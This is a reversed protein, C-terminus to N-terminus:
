SRSRTTSASRRSSCRSARSCSCSRKSSAWSTTTSTRTTRRPSTTARSRRSVRRCCPSCTRRRAAAPERRRRGVVDIESAKDPSPMFLAQAQDFTFSVFTVAGLSDEGGITLIGVVKVQTPDPTLVTITDGVAINEDDAVKKDIAVEGAAAPAHGEAVDWPNLKPDDTWSAAITPPGNGGIPNGNKGVIQGFGQVSPVAARVGDTNRIPEVLSTDILGRTETQDGGIKTASRVVADTGANVKTFLDDFGARMTDGLVLTGVLFTVGLLVAFVTGFLRRKHAWLGKLSVKWM